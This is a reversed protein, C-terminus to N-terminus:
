GTLFRRLSGISFIKENQYIFKLNWKFIRYRRGSLDPSNRVPNM